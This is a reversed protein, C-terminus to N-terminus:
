QHRNFQTLCALRLQSPETCSEPGMSSMHNESASRPAGLIGAARLAWPHSHTESSPSTGVPLSLPVELGM